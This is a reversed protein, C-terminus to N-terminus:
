LRGGARQPLAASGAIQLHCFATALADTTDAAGRRAPSDPPLALLRCIMQQVQAKDARGYGTVAQKITAASYSHVALGARALAVLLAGRVHGLVLASHANKAVFVAEVAAEAPQYQQLLAEVALTMSLLRPLLEGRPAQVTGAAVLVFRRSPGAARELIGWGLRLTGPDIGLVRM